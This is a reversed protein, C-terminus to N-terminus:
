AVELGVVVLLGLAQGLLLRDDIHSLVSCAVVEETALHVSAEASVQPPPPYYSSLTPALSVASSASVQHDQERALHHFGTSPPCQYRDSVQIYSAKM